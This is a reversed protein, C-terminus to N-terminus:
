RLVDIATLRAIHWTSGTKAFAVAFERADRSEEGTSINRRIFSATLTVDATAAGPTM